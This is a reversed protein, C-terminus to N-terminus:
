FNRSADYTVGYRFPWYWSILFNKKTLGTQVILHEWDKKTFSRAVSLPADYRVLRNCKNIRVYYYIFYYPLLHRHLDNIFWGWQAHQTMWIMVRIIEKNNLHHTLFSSIIIQYSDEPKFDFINKNIYRINFEAPTNKEAAKKAWPNLDVGYLEVEIQKKKAWHYIRRLFDGNGFGIDLIRIPKYAPLHSHILKELTNFTPRYSGTRQNIKEIQSLTQEFEEYRISPDDMLEQQLSRKLLFNM